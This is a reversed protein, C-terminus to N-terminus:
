NGNQSIKELKKKRQGKIDYKNFFEESTIEPISSISFEKLSMGHIKHFWVSIYIYPAYFFKTDHIVNQMWDYNYRFLVKQVKYCEEPTLKMKFNEIEIM